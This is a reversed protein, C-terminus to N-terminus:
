RGTSAALLEQVTRREILVPVFDGVKASAYDAAHRRVTGEVTEPAVQGDFRRILRDVLEAVDAEPNEGPQSRM